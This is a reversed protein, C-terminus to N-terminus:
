CIVSESGLGLVDAHTDVGWERVVCWEGLLSADCQKVAMHQRMSLIREHLCSTTPEFRVM